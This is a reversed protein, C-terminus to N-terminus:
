GRCGLPCTSFLMSSGIRRACNHHFIKLIFIFIMSVCQLFDLSLNKVTKEECVRGLLAKKINECYIPSFNDLVDMFNFEFTNNKM